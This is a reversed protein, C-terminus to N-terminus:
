QHWGRDHRHRWITKLAQIAALKDEPLLNGRAEGIGAEQAIAAATAANDGTLMVPTIGLAKLQAIAEKSSEKITDAVAFIALAEGDSMLVTVTHGSKEHEALLAELEPTALKRETALRHNGLAYHVGQIEGEVGRGPLAKFNTVTLSTPHPWDCDSQIGSSGITRGLRRGLLRPLRIAARM